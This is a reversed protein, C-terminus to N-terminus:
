MKTEDAALARLRALAPLAESRAAALALLEDALALGEARSDLGNAVLQTRLTRPLLAVQLATTLWWTPLRSLAGLGRPTLHGRWARVFRLAEKTVDMWLRVHDRRALRDPAHAVSATALMFPTIWAAHSRQWDEMDDRVRVPFGAGSFVSALQMVRESRPGSPEGLVMPQLFAPALVHELVGDAGFSAVAGAFGVVLRSGLAERWADYGTAVNVMVLVDSTDGPADALLPLVADVQHRRVLVVILDHPAETVRLAVRVDATLTDAGRRTRVRVGHARLEELRRGRALLSVQHGAHALKAAYLTGLAGAGFVLIRM